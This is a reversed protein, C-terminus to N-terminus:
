KIDLQYVSTGCDWVIDYGNLLMNEKESKNPDYNEIKTSLNAKQFMYRSYRKGSKFYFYSPQSHHLFTFGSREYSSGTFWRKDAYTIISSPTSDEIFARLLRSFGGVVSTNLKTCSRLVEWEASKSFRPKGFTVLEVLTDVDYLGVAISSAVYGQLHNEDLFEQEEKKTVYAIRLKRAFYKTSFKGITALLVSLVIEKKEQWEWDFIHLIRVGVESAESTKFIHYNSDKGKNEGHWFSGNCEIGVRYEPLYIDIEKKSPLINRVNYEVSTYNSLFEGIEKEMFSVNNVPYCTPCRPVHGDQLHDSFSTSCATCKWPYENETGKYEELSFLPLVKHQVRDGQSISTYITEFSKFKRKEQVEPLKSVNDVGYKLYLDEKMSSLIDISKLAHDVGHRNRMTNVMKSKSDTNQLAHDTGYLSLMTEKRKDNVIGPTNLPVTSGHRELNTAQVKELVEKRQLPNSVGYLTYNTKKVKDQVEKSEFPTAVGYKRINTEKRKASASEFDTNEKKKSKTSEHNASCKVSCYTNYGSSFNRFKLSEGCYCTPVSSLDHMLLYASELTNDITPFLAILSSIIESWEPLKQANSNFRGSTTICKSIIFEKLTHQEM